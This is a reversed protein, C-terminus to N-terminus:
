FSPLTIPKLLWGFIHVRGIEPIFSLYRQSCVQESIKSDSIVLVASDRRIENLIFDTATYIFASKKLLSM